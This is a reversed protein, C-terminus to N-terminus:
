KTYNKIDTVNPLKLFGNDMVNYVFHLPVSNRIKRVM